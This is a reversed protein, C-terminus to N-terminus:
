HVRTWGLSPTRPFDVVPVRATASPPDVCISDVRTRIGIHTAERIRLSRPKPPSQPIGGIISANRVKSTRRPPERKGETGGGRYGSERVVSQENGERGNMAQRSESTGRGEDQGERFPHKCSRYCLYLPQQSSPAPVVKWSKPCVGNQSSRCCASSSLNQFCQVSGGRGHRERQERM